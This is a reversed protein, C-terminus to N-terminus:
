VLGVHREGVNVAVAVAGEAAFAGGVLDAHDALHEVGRVVCGDSGGGGCVVSRDPTTVDGLNGGFAAEVIEDSEVLLAVVAHVAESRSALGVLGMHGVEEQVVVGRVDDGEVRGHGVPTGTHDLAHQPLMRGASDSGTGDIGDPGGDVVFARVDEREEGGLDLGM